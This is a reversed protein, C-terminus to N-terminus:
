AGGRAKAIFTDLQQLHEPVPAEGSHRESFPKARGKRYLYRTGSWDASDRLFRELGCVACPDWKGEEHDPDFSHHVNMLQRDTCASVMWYCHHFLAGPAEKCLDRYTGDVCKISSMNKM